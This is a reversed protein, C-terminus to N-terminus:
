ETKAYYTPVRASLINSIRPWLNEKPQSRRRTTSVRRRRKIEWASSFFPGNANSIKETTSTAWNSTGPPKKVGIWVRPNVPKKGKRLCSTSRCLEVVKAQHIGIAGTSILSAERLPLLDILVVSSRKKSVTSLFTKESSRNIFIRKKGGSHPSPSHTAGLFFPPFFFFPFSRHKRLSFM